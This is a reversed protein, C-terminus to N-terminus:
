YRYDGPHDTMLAPAKLGVARTLLRGIPVYRNNHLVHGLTKSGIKHKPQDMM